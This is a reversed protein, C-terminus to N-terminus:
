SFNVMVAGYLPSWPNEKKEKRKKEKRKRGEKMHTPPPAGQVETEERPPIKNQKRSILSLNNKYETKIEKKLFSKL